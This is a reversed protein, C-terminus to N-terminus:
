DEVRSQPRSGLEYPLYPPEDLTRRGGSGFVQIVRARFMACADASFHRETVIENALFTCTEGCEGRAIYGSPALELAPVCERGM